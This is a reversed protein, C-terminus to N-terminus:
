SLNHQATTAQKPLNRNNFIGLKSHSFLLTDVSPLAQNSKMLVPGANVTLPLYLQNIFSSSSSTSNSTTTAAKLYRQNNNNIQILEPVSTILQPPMQTHTTAVTGNSDEIKMTTFKPSNTTTIIQNNTITFPPLYFNSTTFDSTLTSSSAFEMSAPSSFPSSELSSCMPKKLSDTLFFFLFFNFLIFIIHNTTNLIKFVNHLYIIKKKVLFRKM